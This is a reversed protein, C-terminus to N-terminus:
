LSILLTPFTHHSRRGKGGDVAPGLVIDQKPLSQLLALGTALIVTSIGPIDAGVLLVHEKGLEFTHKFAQRMRQGLDGSGVQRLYVLDCGLWEKMVDEEGKPSLPTAQGFHYCVIITPCNRETQLKRAQGVIVYECFLNIMKRESLFNNGVIHETMHQQLQAAAEAGIQKAL